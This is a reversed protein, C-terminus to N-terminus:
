YFRKAQKLRMRFIYSLFEHYVQTKSEVLHPPLKSGRPNMVRLFEAEDFVRLRALMSRINLYFLQEVDQVVSVFKKYSIEEPDFRHNLLELIIDKRMKMRELQHLCLEIKSGLSKFRKYHSLAAVYDEHSKIEKVPIAASPKILLFYIAYSLVMVSALILTVGTAAELASATISVGLLGPSFVIVNVAVVGLLVGLM